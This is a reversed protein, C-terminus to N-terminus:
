DTTLIRFLNEINQAAPKFADPFGLFTKAKEVDAPLSLKQQSVAYIWNNESFHRALYEQEIQGPTPIFLGPKYLEVMEMVTTYGPRAIIFASQKMYAAIETRSLYSFFVAEGIRLKYKKEPQGLAGVVRGKLKTIQSFILKQFISRQPEPGSILVLYDIENKTNIQPRCMDTLIGSYYLKEAPLYHMKHSLEGTLSPNEPCDPIIIKDYKKFYRANFIEPLWELRRALRPLKYRLQHSVLVCCTDPLKLAFRNDSIIFRFRHERQLKKIVKRERYMAQLMQPFILIMFRTVFFRSRPYTIPYPPFDLFICEPVEKALLTKSRGSAGIYVRFGGALFRRILPLMRTAHGLGWNLPAFFVKKGAEHQM